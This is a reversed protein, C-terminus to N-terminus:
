PVHASAALVIFSRGTAGQPRVAGFGPVRSSDGLRQARIARIDPAAPSKCHSRDKGSTGEDEDGKAGGQRGLAHRAV